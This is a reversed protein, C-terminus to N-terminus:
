ILRIRSLGCCHLAIGAVVTGFYFGSCSHSIQVASLVLVCFGPRCRDAAADDDDDDVGYGNPAVNRANKAEVHLSFAVLDTWGVSSLFDATRRNEVIHHTIESHMPSSSSSLSPSTNEDCSKRRSNPARFDAVDAVAM